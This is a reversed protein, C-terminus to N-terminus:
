PNCGVPAVRMLNHVPMLYRLTLNALGVGAAGRLQVRANPQMRDVPLADGKDERRGSAMSTAEDV